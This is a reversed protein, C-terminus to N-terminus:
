YFKELFRIENNRYVLWARQSKKLIEKQSKGIITSNMINKYETNLRIEWSSTATEMCVLWEKNQTCTAFETDITDM